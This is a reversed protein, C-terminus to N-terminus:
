RARATAEGLMGLQWMLFIRQDAEDRLRLSLPKGSGHGAEREVWLLIPKRSQDSADAARLAATMKRAHLPHVRADNEAATLFVAPYKTGAKVHHYPSYAYLFKAQAADEASGYEPVWYRAMLFNQYRLMDLLPVASIVAGFLDPRQTLAAGTLLGGNSGGEIALKDRSTYGSAILYEAAAIFDDFVNQKKALMGAEHWAEGYEGGGRLNPVAYVGGADFWQFLTPVFHPKESIDFGGYGTLLTPNRGNKQLGKKHAIFMSVKTGDKSPYWVQEVEVSAPDVPVAPREWLEPEADPHALDVRFITSPYNFSTFQLFAETRDEDDSLGASGIGPLKLEGLRQGAPSYLEYRDHAAVLAHVAIVGKGASVSEITVDKREPVLLKWTSRDAAREPHTLDIAYLQGNPAGLNTHLYLTDGLTFGTSQANQGVLIPVKVLPGGAVFKRADAVWSDNTATGTSYGLLLWRGDKSLSAGPGFTHALRANEAPTYQRMVLRDATVETGMRHFLVQGSYPNEVDALNRYFFGSGDPLWDFSSVKNGISLPLTRGTSVELIHLTSREDGSRFTGYALLKGDESADSWSITTLGSPDLKAPDLLRRPTGRYGERVYISPQNEDGERKSYFYRDGRMRPLGVSGVEMLPRLKAELEKRGPLNDLVSRTYANQAETWAAVEPTTAGPTKPDASGELWRYDDVIPIGHVVEKVPRSATPPPPPVAAATAAALSPGAALASAAAVAALTALAIRKM